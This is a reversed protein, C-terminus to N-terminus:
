IGLGSERLLQDISREAKRLGAGEVMLESELNAIGEGVLRNLLENVPLDCREALHELRLSQDRTLHLLHPRPM